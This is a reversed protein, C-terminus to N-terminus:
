RGGEVPNWPRRPLRPCAMYIYPWTGPQSSWEILELQSEGDVVVVSLWCRRYVNVDLV